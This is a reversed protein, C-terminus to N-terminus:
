FSKAASLSREAFRKDDSPNDHEMIFHTVSKGRLAKMIAPWDMTGDGVDAWGDEDTNQGEAAIDKVHVAAIRNGHKEIWELPDSGGRVIWAIDAEWALTPAAELILDMPIEGTSVPCFEFDHNHWGFGLGAARLPAGAADLRKGFERWGVTSSPREEPLLFPVFVTEIGVSRAIKLVRDSQNEVMDIDMHATPMKLGSDGLSAVLNDVASRDAFLGGYGEVATYGLRALMTLTDSLAPVNRSSYLQYSFGTM